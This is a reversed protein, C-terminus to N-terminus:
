FSVELFSLKRTNLCFGVRIKGYFNRTPAVNWKRDIQYFLMQLCKYEKIDSLLIYLVLNILYVNFFNLLLWAEIEIFAQVSNLKEEHLFRVLFSIRACTNEQSNQLIESFVIKVTCRKAVAQYKICRKFFNGIVHQSLFRIYWYFFLLFLFCRIYWCCFLLFFFCRIYWCCFLLFLFCRIYWCCSLLFLFSRITSSKAKQYANSAPEYM